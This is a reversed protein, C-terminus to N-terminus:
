SKNDRTVCRGKSCESKFDDCRFLSICVRNKDALCIQELLFNYRQERLSNIAISNGGSHCDCCGESVLVCDSDTKCAPPSDLLLKERLDKLELNIDLSEDEKDLTKKNSLAKDNCSSNFFLAILFLVCFKKVNM